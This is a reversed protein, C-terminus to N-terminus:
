PRLANRRVAVRCFTAGARRADPQPLSRLPCVAHRARLGTSAAVYNSSQRSETRVNLGGFVGKEGAFVVGNPRSETRKMLDAFVGRKEPL